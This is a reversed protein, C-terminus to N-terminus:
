GNASSASLKRAARDGVAEPLDAPSRVITDDGSHVRHALTVGSAPAAATVAAHAAGAFLHANGEVLSTGLGVLFASGLLIGAAGLMARDNRDKPLRM